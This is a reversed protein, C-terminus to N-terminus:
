EEPIYWYSNFGNLYTKAGKPMQTLANFTNMYDGIGSPISVFGFAGLIEFQPFILFITFPIFGFIINPLLSMIVFQKKSMDEFPLIFLSGGKPYIYLDVNGKCCLAHIIEHPVMMLLSLIAGVFVKDFDINGCHWFYILALAILLVFGLINMIVSFKKPSKPEKFMVANPRDTNKPLTSTDGNFKGKYYLKM